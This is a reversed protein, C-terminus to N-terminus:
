DGVKIKVLDYLLERISLDYNDIRDFTSIMVNEQGLCVRCCTDFFDDM